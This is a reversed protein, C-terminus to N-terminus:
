EYSIVMKEYEIIYDIEGLDSDKIVFVGIFITDINKEESM